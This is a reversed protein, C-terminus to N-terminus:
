LRDLGQSVADLKTLIDNSFASLEARARTLSELVALKPPSDQLRKAQETAVWLENMVDQLTM